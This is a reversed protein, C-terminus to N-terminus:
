VFNGQSVVAAHVRKAIDGESVAIDIKGSLVRKVFKVKRKAVQNEVVLNGVKVLHGRQGEGAGLIVTNKVLRVARGGVTRVVDIECFLLIGEQRKVAGQNFGVQAIQPVQVQGIIDAVVGRLLLQLLAPELLGLQRQGNFVRSLVLLPLFGRAAKHQM